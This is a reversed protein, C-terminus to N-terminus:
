SFINRRDNEEEKSTQQFIQQGKEDLLHVPPHIPPLYFNEVFKQQHFNWFRKRSPNQIDHRSMFKEAETRMFGQPDDTDPVLFTQNDSRLINNIITQRDMIDLCSQKCVNETKIDRM